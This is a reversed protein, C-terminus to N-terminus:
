ISPRDGYITDYFQNNLSISEGNFEHAILEAFEYFGLNDMDSLFEDVVEENREASTMYRPQKWGDYYIEEGQLKDARDQLIKNFYGMILDYREIKDQNTM